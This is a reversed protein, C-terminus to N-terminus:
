LNLTSLLFAHRTEPRDTGTFEQMAKKVRAGCRCLYMLDCWKHLSSKVFSVRGACNRPSSSWSKLLVISNAYYDVPCTWSDIIIFDSCSRIM